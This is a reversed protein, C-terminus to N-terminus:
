EQIPLPPEPVKGLAREAVERCLQYAHEADLEALSRLSRALSMSQLADRDRTIPEDPELRELKELLSMKSVPPALATM